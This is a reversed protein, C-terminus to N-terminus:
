SKLFDEKKFNLNVKAFNNLRTIIKKNYNIGNKNSEKLEEEEKEGPLYFSRTALNKIKKSSKISNKLKLFQNFFDKNYSFLKKKFSIILCNNGDLYNKNLPNNGSILLGGLIENVLLFASGKIEGFPILAGGSYLDAPKDSLNGKKSVIPFGSLKKGDLLALNIKGEALKSTAFDVIFQKTKNLPVGFSFPNTGVLRKTSPYVSTNPGGGNCFIISIFNKRALIENYDSLRGIHGANILATISINEGKKIITECAVNMAIQGLCHNSNILIFNKDKKSIKPKANIKYIGNNIGHYYQILRNIGHSFHNCMDSKVLNKSVIASNNKSLGLKTLFKNSFQIAKEKKINM